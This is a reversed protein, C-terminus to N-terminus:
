PRLRKRCARLLQSGEITDLKTLLGFLSPSPTQSLEIRYQATDESFRARSDM